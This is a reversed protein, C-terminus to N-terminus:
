RAADRGARAGVSARGATRLPPAPDARHRQRHHPCNAREGLWRVGALYARHRCCLQVTAGRDLIRIAQRGELFLERFQASLGAAQLALQGNYDHIDLLGGQARAVPSAEAEYITSVIGHVHLVRALTLGGLGAGIIAISSPV